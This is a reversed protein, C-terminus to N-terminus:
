PEWDPDSSESSNESLEESADESSESEESDMAQAREDESDSELEPDLYLEFGEEDSGLEAVEGDKEVDQEMAEPEDEEEDMPEPDEALVDPEENVEEEQMMWEPTIEPDIVEGDIIIPQMLGVDDVPIDFTRLPEGVNGDADRHCWAVYEQKMDEEEEEEEEVVGNLECGERMRGGYKENREARARLAELLEGVAREKNRRNKILVESMDAPTM